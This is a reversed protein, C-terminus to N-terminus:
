SHFYDDIGRGIGRSRAPLVFYPLALSSCFHKVFSTAFRGLRLLEPVTLELPPFHVRYVSPFRMGMANFNLNNSVAYFDSLWPEVGSLAWFALLDGKLWM